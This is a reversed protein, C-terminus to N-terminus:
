PGKRQRMPDMMVWRGSFKSRRALLFDSRDVDLFVDDNAPLQGHLTLFLQTATATDVEGSPFSGLWILADRETMFSCLWRIRVSQGPPPFVDDRFVYWRRNVQLIAM